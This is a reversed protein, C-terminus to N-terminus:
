VSLRRHGSTPSWSQDRELTFADCEGNGQFAGFDSYSAGDFRINANGIIARRPEVRADDCFVQSRALRTASDEIESGSIACEYIARQHPFCQKGVTVLNRDAILQKSEFHQVVNVTFKLLLNVTQQCM